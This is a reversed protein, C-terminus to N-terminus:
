IMGPKVTDNIVAVFQEVTEKSARGITVKKTTYIDFMCQLNDGCVDKADRELSKNSFVLQQSDAFIPQYNPHHYTAHSKGQEYTFLSEAATTVGKFLYVPFSTFFFLVFQRGTLLIVISGFPGAYYVIPSVFPFLFNTGREGGM